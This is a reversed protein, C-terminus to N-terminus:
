LVNDDSKCHMKKHLVQEVVQLVGFVSGTHERQFSGMGKHGWSTWQFVVGAKYGNLLKQRVCAPASCQSSEGM